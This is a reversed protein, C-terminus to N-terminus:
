IYYKSLLSSTLIDDNNRAMQYSLHISLRKKKLIKKNNMM